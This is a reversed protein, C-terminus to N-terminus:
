SGSGAAPTSGGSSGTTTSTTTTAATGTGSTSTTTSAKRSAASAASYVGSVCTNFTLDCAYRCQQLSAYQMTYTNECTTYCASRDNGCSPITAQAASAEGTLGFSLLLAACYIYYKM